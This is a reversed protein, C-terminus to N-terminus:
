DSNFGKFEGNLITNFNIPDQLLHFINMLLKNEMEKNINEEEKETVVRATHNLTFTRVKEKGNVYWLIYEYTKYAKSFSNNNIKKQLIFHIGKKCKMVELKTNLIEVIGVADM